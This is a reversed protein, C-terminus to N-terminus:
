KGEGEPATAAELEADPIESLPRNDVVVGGHVIAAQPSEAPAPADALAPEPKSEIPPEGQGLPGGSEQPALPTEAAADAALAAKLEATAWEEAAVIQVDRPGGAHQVAAARISEIAPKCAPPLATGEAKLHPLTEVIRRLANKTNSGLPKM